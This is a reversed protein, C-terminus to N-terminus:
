KIRGLLDGVLRDGLMLFIIIESVIKQLKSLIIANSAWCIVIPDDVQCIACFRKWFLLIGAGRQSPFADELPQFVSRKSSM